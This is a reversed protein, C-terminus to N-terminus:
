ESQSPLHYSGFILWKKKRLNLEVFIGEIDNPLKHDALLKSPMDERIDILVGSGMETEILVVHNVIVM